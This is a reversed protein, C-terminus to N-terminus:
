EASVVMGDDDLVLTVEGDKARKVAVVVAAVVAGAVMPIVFQKSKVFKKLSKANIKM